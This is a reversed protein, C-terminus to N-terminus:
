CWPSPTLEEGTSCGPIWVRVPEGPPRSRLINPLITDKLEQFTEPERFFATVHILIDEYLTRLEGPNERLYRLYQSIRAAKHLVMRRVIRRKLTSYKYYRFDVGTANRLLLFLTRLDGDNEAPLPVPEEPSVKLYPHRGIRALERAIREPSLVFDV